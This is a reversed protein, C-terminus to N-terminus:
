RDEPGLHAALVADVLRDTQAAAHDPDDDGLALGVAGWRGLQAVGHLNTWLAIAVLQAPTAPAPRSAEILEVLGRFLPMSTERLAPAGTASAEGRLLDHRFMLEFMGPRERAYRVYAHAAAALQQRAPAARDTGAAIRGALDTFGRRAIAALLSRHTPFYRRPAGHSVGARRAIERLGVSEAGGTCVLEVGADILRDRLSGTTDM